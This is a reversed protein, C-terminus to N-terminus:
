VNSLTASDSMEDAGSVTSDNQSQNNEEKLSTAEARGQPNAPAEDEESLITEASSSPVVSTASTSSSTTASSDSPGVAVPNEPELESVDAEEQAKPTNGYKEAVEKEIKALNQERQKKLTMYDYTYSADSSSKSETTETEQAGTQNFKKLAEIADKSIDVDDSGTAKKLKDEFAKKYRTESSVAASAETLTQVYNQSATNKTNSSSFSAIANHISTLASADISM